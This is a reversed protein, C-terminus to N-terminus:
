KNKIYKNVIEVSKVPKLENLGKDFNEILQLDKTGKEFTDLNKIHNTGKNFKESVFLLAKKAEMYALEPNDYTDTYQIQNKKFILDHKFITISIMVIILSAAVALTFKYLKSYKLIKHSINKEYDEINNWIQDSLDNISSSIIKENKLFSFYEKDSSFESDVTKNSFYEFLINDEEKSTNGDYYKELLIKIEQKEM